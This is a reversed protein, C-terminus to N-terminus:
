HECFSFTEQMICTNVEKDKERREDMLRERYKVADDWGIPFEVEDMVMEFLEQPLGGFRETESM